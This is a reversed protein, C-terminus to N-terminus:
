ALDPITRYRPRAFLRASLTIDAFDPLTDPDLQAPVVIIRNQRGEVGAPALKLYDRQIDSARGWAGGGDQERVVTNHRLELLRSGFIAADSTVPCAWFDDVFMRNTSGPDNHLLGVRGLRLVGASEFADSYVSVKVSTAGVLTATAVGNDAVEFLLTADVISHGAGAGDPGAGPVPVSALFTPVGAVCQAIALRAETETSAFLVACGFDDENLYRAVLGSYALSSRFFSAWQSVRAGVLVGSGASGSAIVLRGQALGSARDTAFRSAQGGAATWESASGSGSSQWRGGVPLATTLTGATTFEDRARFMTPAATPAIASVIGNGEALPVLELAAVDLVDGATTSKAIVRGQWSHSGLGVPRLYVEGLSVRVPHGERSHNAAFIVTQNTGGPAAGINWELALSVEGTNTSPMLVRAMVEFAGAHRLWGGALDTSLMAQWATTLTAQRIVDSSVSAGGLPTLDVADYYLRATTATSLSRSERGWRLWWVDRGSENRLVLRGLADVDGGVEFPETILCPTSRELRLPVEYERGLGYPLCIFTIEDETRCRRMFRNDLLRDGGTQQLVQWDITDFGPLEFRLIGGERRLKHLKQDLQRQTRAFSALRAADDAGTGTIRLKMPIQQNGPKSGAPLEGEMAISSVWQVDDNSVPASVSLVDIGNARTLALPAADPDITAILGRAM